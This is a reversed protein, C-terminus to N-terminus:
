LYNKRVLITTVNSTNITYCNEILNWNEFQLMKLAHGMSEAVGLCWGGGMSFDKSGGRDRGLLISHVLMLVFLLM